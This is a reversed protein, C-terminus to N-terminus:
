EWPNVIFESLTALWKGKDDHSPLIYFGDSDRTWAMISSGDKAYIRYRGYGVFTVVPLSTTKDKDADRMFGNFSCAPAGIVDIRASGLYQGEASIKISLKSLPESSMIKLQNERSFTKYDCSFIFFFLFPCHATLRYLAVVCGLSTALAM